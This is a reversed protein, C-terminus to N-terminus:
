GVEVRRDELLGLVDIILTVRGDGLVTAGTIGKMDKLFNGLSKIVVEQQGLLEDVLFGAKKQGTEIVVVNYEDKEEHDMPAFNLLKGLDYLSFVEGRMNVVWEKQITKIQHPQLLVNERISEIPIAFIYGGARVMLAKIIALTLPFRLIFMSGKGVESKIEISGRMSEVAKKVADMGVGRGSVDTIESATSFGSRFVLNTIEDEDMRSLEEEDVVGKELAAKKIKEPDMGKGDDEVTLVVHNSEHFARLSIHGIRSKGKSEREQVNEIGHDVANRLIHVLPDSLQNIISRDLETDEGSISLEVEKGRDRCIDRMMRPFREFVQKIPVMRLQMSVNQLETIVRDMQDLSQDLEESLGTGKEMVSNRMIVMEGILNILDDLKSTEVRVMKEQVKPVSASSSEKKAPQERSSQEPSGKDADSPTKEDGAADQAAVPEAQAVGDSTDAAEQPAEQRQAVEDQWPTVEVQQVEAINLIAEKVKAPELFSSVVLVKFAQDFKEEDLDQLSPAATVIEGFQELARIVMYSRVSKMMAGELLVVKVVYGQEGRCEASNLIEKEIESLEITLDEATEEGDDACPIEEEGDGAAAPMGEAAPEGVPEERKDVAPEGEFEGESEVGSEGAPMEDGASVAEEEGATREATTEGTTEGESSPAGTETEAPAEDLVEQRYNAIKELYRQATERENEGPNEPDILLGQFVDVSEFFFDVIESNLLHENGKFQEMFNELDHAVQKLLDFGMTGAMGKLSHVLRFIEQLSEADQPNEEMNMLCDNLLQMYENAEALFIEKYDDM